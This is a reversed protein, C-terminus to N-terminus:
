LAADKGTAEAAEAKAAAMAAQADGSPGQEQEEAEAARQLLARYNASQAKFVERQEAPLANYVATVERVFAQWHTRNGLHYPIENM